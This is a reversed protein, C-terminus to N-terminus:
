RRWFPTHFRLNLPDGSDRIRWWLLSMRANRQLKQAQLTM